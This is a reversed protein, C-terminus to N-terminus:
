SEQSVINRLWKKKRYRIFGFIAKYVEESLVMAYVLYIPLKLILGGLVAMPIGILWVGSVDLFLAAKTDGGSRLIAVIILTNLARVPIYFAFATLSLRIYEKVIESSPFISVIADRFVLTIITGVVSVSLQLIIYYKAYKEAKELHDAGLENGLIVAAAHCVGFFFVMVLGDITSTMTIAATAEEGMRGYVMSYMTVGLGWMFENLIVPTATYIYKLVFAKHMFPVSNEKIKDYKAHIFDGVSDDGQKFFRVSILLITFEFIRAIVTALAAGAVGMQPLGFNGFILGYDLVINIVIALSTVLVPLKVCNMSRLIATYSNTVATLPYSIAIVMLYKAGITIMDKDPTFISMVFRPIFIGPILFLLSGAVGITISMRLVRKINLMERKGYYQSALIGSGSCIGFMLLAFVFFVKNALGIAAVSTDGLRVIMLNDILTFLNNLLNQLAVPITLAFTKKLFVKDNMMNKILNM